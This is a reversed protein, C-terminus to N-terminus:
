QPVARGPYATGFNPREPTSSGFGPAPAEENRTRPTTATQTGAGAVKSRLPALLGEIQGGSRQIVAAFESRQTAAMSAGDIIVDSVRYTDDYRTMRWDIRVSQGGHLSSLQSMVLAGDPEPRTGTVKLQAGAYEALRNSYTMTIYDTFLRHFEQQENPSAERWYRGLVFRGISPLDFHERFLERFRALRQGPSVQPGLAALGQQGLQEVVQAPDAAAAAPMTPAAAAASLAFAALLVTRRMM